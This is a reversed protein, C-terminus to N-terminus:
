ELGAPPTAAWYNPYGGYTPVITIGQTPAFMLAEEYGILEADAGTGITGIYWASVITSATLGIAKDQGTLTAMFLAVSVASSTKVAAILAHMAAAFATDHRNLADLLRAGFRVNLTQHDTLFGSLVMFGSLDSTSALASMPLVLGAAAGQLLIDRRFMRVNM